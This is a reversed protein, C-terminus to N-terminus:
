THLRGAAIINALPFSFPFSSCFPSSFFPDLIGTPNSGAQRQMDRRYDGKAELSVDPISTLLVFCPPSRPCVSLFRLREGDQENNKTKEEPSKMPEEHAGGELITSLRRRQRGETQDWAGDMDHVNNSAPPGHEGETDFDHLNRTRCACTTAGDM